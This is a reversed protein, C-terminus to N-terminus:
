DARPRREHEILCHLLRQELASPPPHLIWRRYERERATTGGPGAAPPPLSRYTRNSPTTWTVSGTARDKNVHMAPHDRTSHCNKSLGQGNDATTRGGRSYEIIHDLDRIPSACQIGRCFNDRAQIFSRLSGDFRRRRSDAASLSADVPDTYLRRVWTNGTTAIHRAVAAPLPGTRSLHAPKDDLGLLTTDSMLLDLHVTLDGLSSAGTVRAVLTDCMLHSISRQDGEAKLSRAHDDLAHWCSAAEEAPLYANFWATGAIGTPTCSIHKDARAATAQRDAADPDIEIVRREVLSRVKAPPVDPLEEAIVQDALAQRDADALLRTSQAVTRAVPLNITGAALLGLTRPHWTALAYADSVFSSAATISSQAALAVEALLCRYQAPSSSVGLDADLANRHGVFEAIQRVQEAQLACIQHQLDTIRDLSAGCV